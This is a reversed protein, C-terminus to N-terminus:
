SAERRDLVAAHAAVPQGSDGATASVGHWSRYRSLVFPALLLLPVINLAHIVIAYSLGESEPVGYAALAVVTAGEVVGLAAPSSPLILALGIAIVVLVGALLSLGLDFSIMVLWYSAGLVVWSLMTWAFATLGTRAGRIGALGHIVSMASGELPLRHLGPLGGLWRLISRFPREGYRAVVIVVAILAIALGAALLAAARLWGLEPLWPSMLFLLVLLGLVDFVREVVATATTEAVSVGATTRLAVIRAVEGARLPLITNLLYGILLSLSLARRPPRRAPEFLSRWREVRILFFAVLLAFAPLLWIPSSEQLSRWVDRPAANDVAIYAFVVSVAIGLLVLARSKWSGGRGGNEMSGMTPATLLSKL